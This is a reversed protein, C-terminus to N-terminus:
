SRQSFNGESVKQYSDKEGWGWRRSRSHKTVVEGGIINYPPIYSLAEDRYISSFTILFYQPGLIFCIPIHNATTFCFRVSGFVRYTLAPHGYYLPITLLGPHLTGREPGSPRARALRWWILIVWLELCPAERIARLKTNPARGKSQACIGVLGWFSNLDARDPNAQDVSLASHPLLWFFPGTVRAGAKNIIKNMHCSLSRWVASAEATETRIGLSGLAIGTECSFPQPRLTFKFGM